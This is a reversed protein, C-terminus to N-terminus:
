RGHLYSSLECTLGLAKADQPQHGARIQFGTRCPPGSTKTGKLIKDIYVASTRITQSSM